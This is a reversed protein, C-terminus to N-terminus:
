SKLIKLLLQNWEDGNEGFPKANFWDWGLVFIRGNNQPILVNTAQNPNDTQYLVVANEPLTTANISNTASLQPLTSPATNLTQTGATTLNIPPDASEYDLSLAFLENALDFAGGEDIFLVLTGGDNVFNTITTKAESSLDDVLSGNEQEPIVLFSGAELTTFFSDSIDTFTEFNLNESIFLIELNNAEHEPFDLVEVWDVYTDNTFLYIKNQNILNTLDSHDQIFDNFIEGDKIQGVIKRDEGNTIMLLNMTRQISKGDLISTDLGGESDIKIVDPTLSVQYEAM